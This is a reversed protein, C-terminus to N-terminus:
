RIWRAYIIRKIGSYDEKVEIESYGAENLMCAVASDCSAGLEFMLTGNDTLYQRAAPIIERYFGLGDECNRLLIRSRIM